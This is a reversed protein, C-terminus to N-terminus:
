KSIRELIEITEKIKAKEKESLEPTKENLLYSITVHFYKAMDIVVNVKPNYDGKEWNVISTKSVNLIKAMETQSLGAKKRLEVIKTGDV